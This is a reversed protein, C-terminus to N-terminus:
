DHLIIIGIPVSELVHALSVIIVEDDRLLSNTCLRYAPITMRGGAPDIQDNFLLNYFQNSRSNTTLVSKKTFGYVVFVFASRLLNQDQLAETDQIGFNKLSGTHETFEAMEVGLYAVGAAGARPQRRRITGASAGRNDSFKPGFSPM